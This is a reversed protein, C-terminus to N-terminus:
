HGPKKGEALQALGLKELTEPKPVANNDWGRM